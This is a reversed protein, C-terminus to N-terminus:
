FDHKKGKLSIALHQLYSPLCKPFLLIATTKSWPGGFKVTSLFQRILIKFRLESISKPDQWLQNLLFLYSDKIEKVLSKNETAQGKRGKFYSYVIKDYFLIETSPPDLEFLFDQDEGMRFQKFRLEEIVDNHFAWRWLGVNRGLDSVSRTQITHTALLANNSFERVEFGGVAVGKEQLDANHIMQLFEIVNPSDDSDWFAIWDSDKVILELGANRALGPSSFDGSIYTCNPHVLSKILSDINPTLEGSKKDNVLVVKVSELTELTLWAELKELQGDIQHLPVVVGLSTKKAHLSSTSM